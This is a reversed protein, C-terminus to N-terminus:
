NKSALTSLTEADDVLVPAPIEESIITPEFNPEISNATNVAPLKFVKIKDLLEVSFSNVRDAVSQAAQSQQAIKQSITAIEDVSRATADAAGVITQSTAAVTEGADVANVTVSQVTQFVERTQKVGQTFSNVLGGLKQVQADVDSVVRHIQSSQQELNTLGENTQQALQSVQASISEFERAVLVFQQPDRQEAARAAVLSANLALVQTQTAIETQDQVFRDALGVFEGLTKMQQVIRDSGEQLIEIEQNLSEINTQGNGVATQLTLLSDNTAALQQAANKASERVTETLSLVQMVSQAQKTTEEAVTAAMKKQRDSNASVRQATNSVQVLTGGLEEVLRNLTDGILGTARDNVQAQVTLDGEEITCVVDLLEGIDQQLQESERRIQEEQQKRIEAETQLNDNLVLLNRASEQLATQAAQRDRIYDKVASLVIVWSALLIPLTIGAFAISTFLQEEYDKLQKSILADVKALVEGNGQAYIKKQTTYENGLLLAAAEAKKGQKVLKFAEAEFEFLKASAGDTKKAEQQMQAPVNALFRELVVAYKDNFDKYRQEWRLDGTNVLMRASMTLAEDMFIMQGSDKQIEFQKTVTSSFNRYINWINWSSTGTLLLSGAITVTITGVLNSRVFQQIGSVSKNSKLVSSSTLNGTSYDRDPKTSNM